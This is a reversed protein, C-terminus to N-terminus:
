SGPLQPGASASSNIQVHRLIQVGLERDLNQRVRVGDCCPAGLQERAIELLRQARRRSARAHAAPARRLFDELPERLELQRPIADCHELHVLPDRRRVMGITVACLGRRRKARRDFTM